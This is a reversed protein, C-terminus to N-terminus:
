GEFEGYAHGTTWYRMKEREFEAFDWEKDELEDTGAIWIYTEATVEEGEINGEGTASDGATKLLRPKVFRREYQSGEFLDLKNINASTLGTVYTGRVSSGVAPIVGPYDAYRVRHRRHDHLIAPSIKINDTHYKSLVPMNYIVRHLVQTSM